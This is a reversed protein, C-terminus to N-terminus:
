LDMARSTHPVGMGKTSTLFAWPTKKYNEVKAEFSTKEYNQVGTKKDNQPTRWVDNKWLKRCWSASGNKWLKSPENKWRKWTQRAVRHNCRRRIARVLVYTPAPLFIQLLVPPAFVRGRVQTLPSVVDEVYGGQALLRFQENPVTKLVNAIRKWCTKLEGGPPRLNRFM